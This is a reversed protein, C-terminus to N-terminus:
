QATKIICLTKYIKIEKDYVPEFCDPEAFKLEEIGFQNKTRPSLYIYNVDYKNLLEVAKTKLISKYITEIDDYIESPNRVLIFNNDAVNKRNALATVMYGERITTLVVSGEPTEEKLFKMAETDAQTIAQGTTIVGRAIAPALSTTALLVVIAAVVLPKARSIKTKELYEMLRNLSQGFLPVLIAGLFMLGASFTIMKFWLLFAVSLAFAMLLYTRRDKEKLMYQHIAFVGFLLPIIGIGTVADVMSIEKFFNEMVQVPINQWILAYSHALFAKKFVIINVWIVLFASFLIIEVEKKNETKYELRTLLLYILLGLVVLFAIASTISLIAALIIFQNLFKKEKLRMFCYMMYMVLPITLSYISASNVTTALFVPISASAFASILAAPRNKTIHMVILYTVFILLSALINPIIKLTLQTGMVLAFPALLYYYGPQFIIFRGRYSLEDDYTPLLTTKISDVQREIFYADNSFNPNQMSIYIRLAAAIIFLTVLAYLYPREKKM